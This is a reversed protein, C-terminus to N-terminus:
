EYRLYANLANRFISLMYTRYRVMSSFLFLYEVNWLFPALRCSKKDEIVQITYFNWLIKLASEYIHGKPKYYNQSTTM